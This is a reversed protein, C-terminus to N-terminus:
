QREVVKFFESLALPLTQLLLVLVFCIFNFSMTIMAMYSLFYHHYHVNSHRSKQGQASIFREVGEVKQSAVKLHHLHHIVNKSPLDSHIFNLDFNKGEDESYDFELPFHPIIDKDTKSM